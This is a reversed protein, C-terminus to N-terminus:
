QVLLWATAALPFAEMIAAVNNWQCLECYVLMELPENATMDLIFELM